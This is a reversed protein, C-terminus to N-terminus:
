VVFDNVVLAHDSVMVGDNELVITESSVMEVGRSLVYDVRIPELSFDVIRGTNSLWAETFIEPGCVPWTPTNDGSEFWYRDLAKEFTKLDGNFDAGLIVKDLTVRKLLSKVQESRERGEFSLHASGFTIGLVDANILVRGNGLHTKGVTTLPFRSLIAVGENMNGVIKESYFEVHPLNFIKSLDLLQDVRNQDVRNYEKSNSEKRSGEKNEKFDVCVEQALLVDLKLREDNVVIRKLTDFRQEWNNFVGWVNLVGVRLHQPTRTDKFSDM